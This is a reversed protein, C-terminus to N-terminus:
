TSNGAQKAAGALVIQWFFTTTDKVIIPITPKEAAPVTEVLGVVALAAFLGVLQRWGSLSSFMKMPVTSAPHLSKSKKM